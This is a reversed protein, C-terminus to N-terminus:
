LTRVKRKLVVWGAAFLAVCWAVLAGLEGLTDGWGAGYTGVDVLGDVLPYSPLARIWASATGPFLAAFAPIMLPIMYVMGYFLTSMFDKGTSGALMATGSIMVAGLLVLTLILLPQPSLSDIAVLVVVAQAMGSLAGAIGKATLVDGVTAPTVLVATVTRDQLEKAILSAMVFMEMLLILFVFIPRFSERATVQDGVRDEGLVVFVQDPDSTSVPLGAGAVAFALERVLGSAAFRIEDPVGADLYVIVETRRGETTAALFDVPFALGISVNRQEAGDPPAIGADHGIVVADGNISWADADGAVVAELDDAAAFGVLALGEAEASELGTLAAPDLGSVGVGISEDVDDPLVWYLAVAVVLVMLTLFAWLRDRGYEAVDKRVIAGIIRARSVPRTM